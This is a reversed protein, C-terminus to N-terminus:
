HLSQALNFFPTRLFYGVAILVLGCGLAIAEAQRYRRRRLTLVTGVVTYVFGVVATPILAVGFYLTSYFVAGLVVNHSEPAGGNLIAADNAEAMEDLTRALEERLGFVEVVATYFAVFVLPYVLARWLLQKRVDRLPSRRRLGQWALWAVLFIFPFGTLLLTGALALIGILQNIFDLTAGTALSV